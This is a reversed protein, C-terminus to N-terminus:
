LSRFQYGQGAFHALYRPLVYYLLRRAKLSDHFVVISGPRTNKIAQALCAAEALHQDFDYTLVEWMVVQYNKKVLRAQQWTLRGHPPRFLKPGEPGAAATLVLDCAAINELYAATTTEWGKLHHFTHNGLRHGARIVKQTEAPHRRVNDGVCFFTARAQYKALEELVFDTVEPIPGDDFTLYIVRDARKKRWLFGPFLMPLLFPTKFFRIAM